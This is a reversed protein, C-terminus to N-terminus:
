STHKKFLGYIRWSAYLRGRNICLNKLNADSKYINTVEYLGIYVLRDDDATADQNSTYSFGKPLTAM